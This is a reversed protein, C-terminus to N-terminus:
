VREGLCRNLELCDDPVRKKALCFLAVSDLNLVSGDHDYGSRCQVILEEDGVARCRPQQNQVTPGDGEIHENFRHRPPGQGRYIRTHGQPGPALHGGLRPLISRGQNRALRSIEKTREVSIM